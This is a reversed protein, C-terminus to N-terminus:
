KSFFLKNKKRSKKLENIKKKIEKLNKLMKKRKSNFLKSM